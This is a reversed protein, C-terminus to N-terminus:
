RGPPWCGPSRRSPAREPSAPWPGPPCGGPVSSRTWGWPCGACPTFRCARFVPGSFPRGKQARFLIEYSRSRNQGRSGSYKQRFLFSSVPAFCTGSTPCQITYPPLIHLPHFTKGGQQQGCRQQQPSRRNLGGPCQGPPAAWSCVGPVASALILARYSQTISVSPRSFAPTAGMWFYRSAMSFAAVRFSSTAASTVICCSSPREVRSPKPRVASRASGLRLVVANERMPAPM